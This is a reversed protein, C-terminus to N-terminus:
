NGRYLGSKNTASRLSTIFPHTPGRQNITQSFSFLILVRAYEAIHFDTNIYKIWYVSEPLLMHVQIFRILKLITIGGAEVFNIPPTTSTDGQEDTRRETQPCFRTRETDEVISM